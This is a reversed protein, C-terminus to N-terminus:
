GAPSRPFIGVTRNGATQPPPAHDPCMVFPDGPLVELVMTIVLGLTKKLGSTDMWAMTSPHYNFFYFDFGVPIEPQERSIEVYELTYM